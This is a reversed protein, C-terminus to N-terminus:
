PTYNAIYYLRTDCGAYKAINATGDNMMAVHVIAANEDNIAFDLSNTGLHVQSITIIVVFSTPETEPLFGFFYRLKFEGLVNLLNSAM